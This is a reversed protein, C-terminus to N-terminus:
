AFVVYSFKVNGKVKGIRKPTPLPFVNRNLATFTLASNFDRRNSDKPEAYMTIMPPTQWYVVASGAAPNVATIIVPQMEAEDARTGKGTYPGPAQWCLVKSTAGIAADTITFRGSTAASGLDVEVTTASGGGGPAAWTQDGRLFTTSDATGSGLRATDITGATIKSANLNPIDAAVLARFTPIGPAGDPSALVLNALQSAWTGTLTGAVVVPSGSITFEAPLALAVSTVTGGGGGFVMDVTQEGRYVPQNENVSM